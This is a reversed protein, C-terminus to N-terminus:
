PVEASTPPVGPKGQVYPAYKSEGPPTRLVTVYEFLAIAATPGGGLVLGALGGIGAALSVIPLVAVLCGLSLVVCSAGSIALGVGIGLTAGIATGILSGISTGISVANILDNMALQNELPSAVPRIGERRITELDPTSVLVRGDPSIEQRIGLRRGDVAFAGPVSALVQGASNRVEVAGQDGSSTFAGHELTTVVSAGRLAAHYSVPPSSGPEAVAPATPVLVATTVLASLVFSLRARM